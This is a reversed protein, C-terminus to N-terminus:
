LTRKEEECAALRPLDAEERRGGPAGLDTPTVGNRLVAHPQEAANDAVGVTQDSVNIDRAQSDTAGLLQLSTSM